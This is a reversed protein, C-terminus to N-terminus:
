QQSNLAPRPHAAGIAGEFLAPSIYSEVAGRLNAPLESLGSETNLRELWDQVFSEFQAAARHGDGRPVFDFVHRVDFEGVRTISDEPTAGLYRNRYILLREPTVLLSLPCGLGSMYTKLQRETSQLDGLNLTADVVLRTNWVEPGTVIIDPEFGM